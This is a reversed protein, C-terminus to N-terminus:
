PAVAPPTPMTVRAPWSAGVYRRGGNLPVCRGPRNNFPSLAKPDYYFERADDTSTFDNPGFSWQGYDGTRKGYSFMGQAFTAPTLNPGAQQLGIFLMMLTQYTLDVLSTPKGNKMTAFAKYAETNKGGGFGTLYSQGLAFQWQDSDYFQGAVDADTGITGSVFWEPYFDQQTASGTLFFPLLPDTVLVLTTVGAAKLQAAMNPAEQQLKAFQLAYRIEKAFSIGAAKLKPRAENICQSYVADDPFILGYKRPKQRLSASGARTANENAPLRKAILDVASNMLTTCDVLQGWAFPARQRYYSQPMHLGGIALVKQRVLADMYPQTLASIDAFAKIEQAVKVADANAGEQGGGAIEAQGDGRGTYRVLKVKRGYLQYNKNFYDVLTDLERKRDAPSASIGAEEAKKELESDEDDEQERQDSASSERIAITITDASVGRYTAGGNNGSFNVCAPSYASGAVQLAGGACNSAAAVGQARPAGAAQATTVVKGGKGPKAGPAAASTGPAAGTTGPAGAVVPAGAADVGVAGLEPSTAAYPDPGAMALENADGPAKSPVTVTVLLLVAIVGALPGYGSLILRNPRPKM